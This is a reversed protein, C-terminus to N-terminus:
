RSRGEGAALNGFLIRIGARVEFYQLDGMVEYRGQTSLRFQDALPYEFGLHLNFGPTLSDLLDEVLTGQIAAGEGDLVHLAVGAGAFSFLSGPLRWVVQGDLAVAVDTWQIEGLDVPAGALDTLRAELEQVEADKFPSTWYTASPVIRLGPGLYGLDVFFTYSYADEVRSPFIQGVEGGIGRFSLNEYDFDALDQASLGGATLAGVGVLLGLVTRREWTSM